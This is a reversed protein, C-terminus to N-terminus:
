APHPQCRAWPPDQGDTTARCATPGWDRRTAAIATAMKTKTSATSSTICAFAEFSTLPTARSTSTQKNMRRSASLPIPTSEQPEPPDRFTIDYLREMPSMPNPDNFSVGMPCRWIQLPPEIPWPTIRRIFVARAHACPASAPWGGALCLLIACDVQYAQAPGSSAMLGSISIATATAVGHIVHKMIGVGDIITCRYSVVNIIALLNSQHDRAITRKDLKIAELFQRRNQSAEADQFHGFNGVEKM